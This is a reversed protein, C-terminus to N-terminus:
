NLPNMIKSLSILRSCNNLNGFIQECFTFRVSEDRIVYQLTCITVINMLFPNDLLKGLLTITTYFPELYPCSSDQICIAALYFCRSIGGDDCFRNTTVKGKFLNVKPKKQSGYAFYYDSFPLLCAAALLHMEAKSFAM